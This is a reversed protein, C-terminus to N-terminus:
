NTPTLAPCLSLCKFRDEETKFGWTRIPSGYTLVVSVFDIQTADFIRTPDGPGEAHFPYIVKKHDWWSQIQQQRTM